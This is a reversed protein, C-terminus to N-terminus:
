VRCGWWVGAGSGVAPCSCGALRTSRARSLSGSSVPMGALPEVLQGRCQGLGLCCLAFAVSGGAAAPWAAAGRSCSAMEFEGVGVADQGGHKVLAFEAGLCDEALQEADVPLDDGGGDV